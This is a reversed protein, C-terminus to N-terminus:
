MPTVISQLAETMKAIASNPHEPFPYTEEQKRLLDSFYSPHILQHRLEGELSYGGATEPHIPRAAGEAVLHWERTKIMEELRQQARETAIAFTPVRWYAATIASGTAFGTFLDAGVVAQDTSMGGLWQWFSAPKLEASYEEITTPDKRHRALLVRIYHESLAISSVSRLVYQWHLLNTEKDKGGAAVLLTQHPEVRLKQRVYPSSWQPFCAAEWLPNGTAIVETGRAVGAHKAKYADRENVSWYQRARPVLDSLWPRRFLGPADGYLVFPIRCENAKDAATIESIATLQESSMGCVVVDSQAVAREIPERAAFHEDYSKLDFFSQVAWDSKKHLYEALMSFAQKPAHDTAVFVAKKM